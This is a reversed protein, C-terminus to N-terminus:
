KVIVKLRLTQGVVVTSGAVDQPVDLTVARSGDLNYSAKVGAVSLAVAPGGNEFSFSAGALQGIMQPPVNVIVQLHRTRVRAVIEGERVFQRASGCVECLEGAIPTICRLKHLQREITRAGIEQVTLDQELAALNQVAEETLCRNEALEVWPLAGKEHLSEYAKGKERLLQARAQGAAIRSRVAAIRAKQRQAELQLDQDDMGVLAEGARVSQGVDKAWPGLVGDAQARIEVQATPVVLGTLCSSDAAAPAPTEIALEAQESHGRFSLRQQVPAAARASAPLERWGLASWSAAILLSSTVVLAKAKMFM